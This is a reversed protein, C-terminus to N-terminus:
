DDKRAGLQLYEERGARFFPSLPAMLLQDFLPGSSTKGGKRPLDGLSIQPIGGALDRGQLGRWVRMQEVGRTQADLGDDLPNEREPAFAIEPGLHLGVNCVTLNRLNSRLSALSQEVM